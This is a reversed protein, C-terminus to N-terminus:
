GRKGVPVWARGLNAFSSTTAGFPVTLRGASYLSLPLDGEDGKQFSVRLCNKNGILAVVINNGRPTSLAGGLVVVVVVAAAVAMMVAELSTCFFVGHKGFSLYRILAVLFVIKRLKPEPPRCPFGRKLCIFLQLVQVSGLWFIYLTSDWIVQLVQEATLGMGIKILTRNCRIMVYILGDSCRMQQRGSM